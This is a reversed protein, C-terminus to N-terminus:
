SARDVAAQMQAVPSELVAGHGPALREPALALLKRASAVTLPRDWTGMNVLPFRPNMRASTETGGLTSYTDGCLVTGYREDLLAIQGPTHGPTALVRLSGIRDGDQVTRTPRTRTGNYAGRPKRQPEGPDLTMDKQLLRAEREGVIVEAAPLADKLSDLGGAHDGHAHTLVIRTIPAGIEEAAALIRGAGRSFTTDVLTLGDEERVLYANVFRWLNIRVLDQM